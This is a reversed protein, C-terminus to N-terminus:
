SKIEHERRVEELVELYEAETWGLTEDVVRDNNEWRKVYASLKDRDQPYCHMSNAFYVVGGPALGTDEAVRKLLRAIAWLNMPMAKVADNSRFIATIWLKKDVDTKFMLDILCPKDDGLQWFKEGAVPLLGQRTWPDAKLKEILAEYNKAYLSHYTYGLKDADADRIGDIFELEYEALGRLDTLICKPVCYGGFPTNAENTEALDLMYGEAGRPSPTEDGFEILDHLNEYVLESINM